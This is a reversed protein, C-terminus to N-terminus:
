ARSARRQATRTHHAMRNHARRKNAMKRKHREWNLTGLWPRRMRPRPTFARRKADDMMANRLQAAAIPDLKPAKENIM